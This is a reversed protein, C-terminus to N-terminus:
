QVRVGVVGLLYRVDRRLRKRELLGLVGLYVLAALIAIVLTSASGGTWQSLPQLVRFLVVAVLGALVPPLLVPGLGIHMYSKVYVFALAIGVLYLLDIVLAAGVLEYRPLAILMGLVLLGGQVARVKVIEGIKAQSYLLSKMNEFVTISVVYVSLLPVIEGAARWKEGYLLVTIDEGFLLFLVAVLVFIRVLFYNIVEFARALRDESTQLRSYAALSVHTVAPGAVTHGLRSLQIARDFHGLAAIGLITGVIFGQFSSLFAELGTSVFMRSGFGFLHRMAAPDFHWRFRWSSVFRMGFFSGIAFLAEKCVLSWVGLGLWALLVAVVMSTIRAGMQVLSVRRYELERQLTAGYCNSLSLPIRLASLIVLIQVVQVSYFPKLFLSGAVVLAFLVCALTLSLICATDFLKQDIEVAQVLAVQFSWGSLIYFIALISLGLAFVGFDDPALLRALLINAGFALFYTVLQSASM